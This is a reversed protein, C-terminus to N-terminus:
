DQVAHRLIYELLPRSEAETWDVFRRVRGGIYLAKRGTEPHARVTPQVVPPKNKRIDALVQAPRNMGIGTTNDVIAELREFTQQLGPSLADWAMYQNAFLTNGGVAPLAKSVLLTASTPVVTTDRDSHWRDGSRHQLPNEKSAENKITVVERNTPLARYSTSRNDDLAGFHKAFTALQDPTLDQEPFCLVHHELWAARIEAITSASLSTRLDIGTVQAGAAYGIREVNLAM